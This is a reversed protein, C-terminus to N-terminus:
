GDSDVIISPFEQVMNKMKIEHKRQVEKQYCYLIVFSVAVLIGLIFIIIKIIRDKLMTKLFYNVLEEMRNALSQSKKLNENTRLLKMRQEYVEEEIDLMVTNAQKLNKLINDAANMGQSLLKEGQAVMKVNDDTMSTKKQESRVDYFGFKIQRIRKSISHYKEEMLQVEVGLDDNEEDDIALYNQITLMEQNIRELFKDM